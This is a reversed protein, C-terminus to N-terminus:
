QGITKIHWPLPKFLLFLLMCSLPNHPYNVLVFFDLKSVKNFRLLITDVSILFRTIM